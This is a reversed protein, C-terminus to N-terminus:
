SVITILAQKRQELCNELDEPLDEWEEVIDKTHNDDEGESNDGIDTMEIDGDNGRSHVGKIGKDIGGQEWHKHNRKQRQGQNADLLQNLLGWLAPAFHKMKQATDLLSFNCLKEQM